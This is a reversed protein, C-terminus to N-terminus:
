KGREKETPPKLLLVRLTDGKKIDTPGPIAIVKLSTKNHPEGTYHGEVYGVEAEYSEVLEGTREEYISKMQYPNNMIGNWFEEWDEIVLVRKAM